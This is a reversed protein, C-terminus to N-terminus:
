TIICLWELLAASNSWNAWLVTHFSTFSALVSHIKGSKCHISWVINSGWCLHYERDCSYLSVNFTSVYSNHIIICQFTIVAEEDTYNKCCITYIDCVWRIINHCNDLYQIIITLIITREHAMSCQFIIVLKEIVINIYSLTENLICM